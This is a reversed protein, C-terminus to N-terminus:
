SEGGQSGVEQDILEEFEELSLDGDIYQRKATEVDKSDEQKSIDRLSYLKGFLGFVVVVSLGVTGALIVIKGFQVSWWSFVEIPIIGVFELVFLLLTVFIGIMSITGFLDGLIRLDRSM